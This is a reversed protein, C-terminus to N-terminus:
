IWSRSRSVSAVGPNGCFSDFWHPALPEFTPNAFDMMDFSHGGHPFVERRALPIRTGRPPFRPGYGRQSGFSHGRGFEYRGRPPSRGVFEVDDSKVCWGFLLELSRLQTGYFPYL